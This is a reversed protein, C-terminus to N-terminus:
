PTIWKRKAGRAEQQSRIRGDMWLGWVVHKIDDARVQLRSAIGETTLPDLCLMQRLGILGM